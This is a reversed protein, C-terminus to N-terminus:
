SQLVKNFLEALESIRYPKRIFWPNEDDYGLDNVEGDPYGSTFVIKLAPMMSRAESAIDPGSLGEPLVVDTFLVDIEPHKALASFAAKGDKAEIINCGLDSLTGVVIQRVDPDDEVVLVTAVLSPAQTGREEDPEVNAVLEAARPLYIHFSTGEGVQSEIDVFGGLQEVFGHVMSLGLGTGEGVDKTTFFPEFVHELIEPAIGTGTDTVELMLFDGPVINSHKALLQTDITRNSTTITIRGGGPMAARANISLNLLASELLSKDANIPWIGDTFETNIQVTEGLTQQMMERMGRVLANLDVHEVRLTQKRSFSLLQNTLEAARMAGRMASSLSKHANGDTVQDMTRELNGVIVMLLNNFEHAIGGTLQGVAEMKQAQRLQEEAQKRETIETVVFLWVEDYFSHSFASISLSFSRRSSGKENRHVEGKWEGKRVLTPLVEDILKRNDNEYNEFIQSVQLRLLKGNDYGFMKEASINAYVISEDNTRVLFVAESMMELIRAQLRFEEELSVNKEIVQHSYREPLVPDITGFEEVINFIGDAGCHSLYTNVRAHHHSPNMEVMGQPTELSITELAGVLAEAELSGARNAAEAFAKVCVFAGEGFNTLIGNGQPWVGNVGPFKALNELFQHNSPTDVTMFYTNSSYFGERIEPSLNSAMMEDYHGMVVAMRKKLGRETFRTLLALQDTGAFYPVFVDPASAEVQDLLSEIENASVGISCYEEGVVIGGVGQLAVKGAHISGRPWEYNNGAFFMRPGFKARMFPIMRDIQQNPLAAFHFFYRSAISGEYFSFNLLPVKRPEAVSYAVAIRSNSLLNGIIASCGDREVLKEAATVASEPLSGDDEIILELPRGLVGGNENVDLCAILGARAIETGYIGVLGTLPPM